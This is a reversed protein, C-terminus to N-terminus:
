KAAPPKPTPTPPLIVEFTTSSSTKGWLISLTGKGDKQGLSITLLETEAPAETTDLGVEFLDEEPKHGMPHGENKKSVVLRWGMGARKAFLGYRGPELKNDGFKLAVDTKLTTVENSGLRWVFGDKVTSMQKYGAGSTSPRGHEVSINKGAITVKSFGRGSKVGELPIQFLGGGVDILGVIMPGDREMDVMMEMDQGAFSLSYAMTLSGKDSVSLRNITQHGLPPPLKLTGTAKGAFDGGADALEFEIEMPGGMPSDGQFNWVGLFDKAKDVPLEPDGIIERRRQEVWTKLEAEAATGVKATKIAAEMMGGGVLFTGEGKDGDIKTSAQVDVQQGMAEIFFTVVHKSGEVRVEDAESAGLPTTITAKIKDGDKTAKLSGLQPGGPLGDVAITWDGVILNIDAPPETPKPAAAPQASAVGACVLLAAALAAGRKMDRLM